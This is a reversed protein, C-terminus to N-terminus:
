AVIERKPKKERPRYSALLNTVIKVVREQASLLEQRINVQEERVMRLADRIEMQTTQTPKANELIRVRASLAQIQQAIQQDPSHNRVDARNTRTFWLWAVGVVVVFSCAYPGLESM